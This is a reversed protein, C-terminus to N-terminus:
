SFIDSTTASIASLTQKGYLGIASLESKKFYLDGGPNDYTYNSSYPGATQSFDKVPLNDAPTQLARKVAEMVVWAITNAFSTSASVKADLDVDIDDGMVRLRDSAVSLLFEARTEEAETLERWFSSLQEKTAFDSM